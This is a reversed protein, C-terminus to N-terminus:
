IDWNTIDADYEEGGPVGDAGYSVIDYDGETGPSIYAYPNGWPDLRLKRKELYGGKKYNKPIKGITPEAILAELGQETSPYFGNDIKFLKLATEFGKIDVRAKTVKAQDLRDMIRPAIFSALLAIIVVVVMIEILTFGSRCHRSKPSSLRTTVLSSHRFKMLESPSNCATPPLNICNSNNIQSNPM